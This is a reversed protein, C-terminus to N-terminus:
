MGVYVNDSGSQSCAGSTPNVCVRMEEGKTDYQSLTEPINVSEFLQSATFMSVDYQSLSTTTSTRRKKKQKMTITSHYTKLSTLASSCNPHPSCRFTSSPCIDAIM